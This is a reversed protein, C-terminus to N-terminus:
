THKDPEDWYWTANDIIHEYLTRCCDWPYGAHLGKLGNKVIILRPMDGYLGIVPLEEYHVDLIEWFLERQKDPDVTQQLEEWAGWIKWIYHDPPPEEAVPNTPDLYWATYANVWTRDETNTHKTWIQPDALPILNRDAEGCTMEVENSHHM